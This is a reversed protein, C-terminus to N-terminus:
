LLKPQTTKTQISKVNITYELNNIGEQLCQIMHNNKLKIAYDLRNYLIIQQNNLETLTLDGWKLSDIIADNQEVATDIIAM